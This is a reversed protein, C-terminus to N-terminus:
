SCDFRYAWPTGPCSRCIFLYMGGMDGICLSTPSYGREISDVRPDIDAGVHQIPAWRKGSEVDYERSSVTILHEMRRGCACEPWRPPQTWGPWGGVKIGPAVSLHRFYSLATAAELTAMRSAREPQFELEDPNPYEVVQEPDVLCPRPVTGFPSGESPEPAHAAM